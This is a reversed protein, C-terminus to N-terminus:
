AVCVVSCAPTRQLVDVLVGNSSRRVAVDATDEGIRLNRLIIEDVFDPMTPQDFVIRRNAVEFSLGLTAQLLMLPAATAWAQPSCAVPYFVPGAGSQRPFGCFLEPLRRLDMYNSAEFLGAFIQM